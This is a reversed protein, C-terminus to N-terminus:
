SGVDSEYPARARGKAANCRFHEGHIRAKLDLIAVLQHNHVCHEVVTRAAASWRLVRRRSCINGVRRLDITTRLSTRTPLFPGFRPASESTSVPLSKGLPRIIRSDLM